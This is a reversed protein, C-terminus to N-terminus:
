GSGSLFRKLARNLAIPSEIQPYHGCNEIIKTHVDPVVESFLHAHAIPVLVDKKGWIAMTPMRLETCRERLTGTYSGILASGTSILKGLKKRSGYMELLHDIEKKSVNGNYIVFRKVFHRLSRKVLAPAFDVPSVPLANWPRSSLAILQWWLPVNSGLGAPSVVVLRDVLKPQELAMELAMAGGMSHGIVTVSKLGLRDFLEPFYERYFDALDKPSELREPDDSRGFPPLDIAIVRYGNAIKPIVRRWGDATDGYGHLFLLPEGKGHDYAYTDVGAVEILDGVLRAGTHDTLGPHDVAVAM